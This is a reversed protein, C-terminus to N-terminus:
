RKKERIGIVIINRDSDFHMYNLYDGDIEVRDPTRQAYRDAKDKNERAVVTIITDSNLTWVYNSSVEFSLATSGHDATTDTLWLTSDQTTLMMVPKIGTAKLMCEWCINYKKGIEYDGLQKKLFAQRLDYTKNDKDAVNEVTISMGIMTMELEKSRMDKGCVDCYVHEPEGERVVKEMMIGTTMGIKPAEDKNLVLVKDAAPKQHANNVERVIGGWGIVVITILIAIVLIQGIEKRM